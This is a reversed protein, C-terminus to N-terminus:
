SKFLEQHKKKLLYCKEKLIIEEHMSKTEKLERTHAYLYHTATNLPVM